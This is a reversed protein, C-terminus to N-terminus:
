LGVRKELASVRKELDRLSAQDAKRELLTRMERIEGSMRQIDESNKKIDESNKKIGESNLRVAGELADLRRTLRAETEELRRGMKQDIAFVAEITARNQEVMQEVLVLVRGTETSAAPPSSERPPKRPTM